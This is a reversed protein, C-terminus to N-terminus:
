SADVKGRSTFELDEDSEDLFFLGGGEQDVMFGQGYEKYFWDKAETFEPFFEGFGLVIVIRGPLGGYRVHDGAHIEEGSLYYRSLDSM